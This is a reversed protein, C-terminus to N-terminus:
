SELAFALRFLNTIGTHANALADFLVALMAVQFYPFTEAFTGFNGGEWVCDAGTWHTKSGMDGRPGSLHPIDPMTSTVVLGGAPVDIATYPVNWLRFLYRVHHLLHSTEKVSANQQKEKILKAVITELQEELKKNDLEIVRKKNRQTEGQQKAPDVLEKM